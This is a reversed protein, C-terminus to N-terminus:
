LSARRDKKSAVCWLIKFENYRTEQDLTLEMVFDWNQTGKDRNLQKVRVKYM